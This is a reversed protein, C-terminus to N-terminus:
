RDTRHIRQKIKFLNPDRRDITVKVWHSEPSGFTELRTLNEIPRKSTKSLLPKDVRFSHTDGHVLLVPKEFALVQTELETLFVNFGTRREPEREFRPDAHMILVVGDMKQASAIAFAERMWPITAAMRQEYEADGEATRGLNNNSGVIHLTAFVVKEMMWRANERFKAYAPERSQRTLPMTKQGLSQEGQFFIERLKALREVPDYRGLGLRHCDTWENDGPTYILPHRSLNLWGKARLFVEDSCPTHSGNKFDGVHVVFHLEQDRNMDAILLPFVAEEETNYPLDGFIGFSVEEPQEQATIEVIGLCLVLLALPFFIRQRHPIFLGERPM